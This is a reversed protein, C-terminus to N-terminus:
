LPGMAEQASGSHDNQLAKLPYTSTDVVPLLSFMGTLVTDMEEKAKNFARMKTKVRKHCHNYWFFNSVLLQIGVQFETWIDLRPGQRFAAMGLVIEAAIQSVELELTPLLQISDCSLLDPEEMLVSFPYCDARKTEEVLLDMISNEKYWKVAILNCFANRGQTYGDNEWQKVFAKMATLTQPEEVEQGKGKHKKGKVKGTAQSLGVVFARINDWDRANKELDESFRILPHELAWFDFDWDVGSTWAKADEFGIAILFKQVTFPAKGNSGSPSDNWLRLIIDVVTAGM